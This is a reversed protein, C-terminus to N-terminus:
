EISGKIILFHGEKDRPNARRKFDVKDSIHIEVGANKRTNGYYLIDEELRKNKTETHRKILLADRIPM